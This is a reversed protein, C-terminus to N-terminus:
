VLVRKDGVRRTYHIQDLYEMLPLAYKRSTQLLDRLDRVEISGQERIFNGVLSRVQQLTEDAYLLGDGVQHLRGTEVLWNILEPRFGSGLLEDRSPAEFGAANVQTLIAEIQDKQEATLEVKHSMLRLHAQVAEIDGIESLRSIAEEFLREGLDLQSRVTERAPGVRLPHEAHFRGIVDLITERLHNWTEKALVFSPLGVLVGEDTSTLAALHVSLDDPHLPLERQLVDRHYWGRGRVALVILEKPTAKERGALSDLDLIEPELLAPSRREKGERILRLSRRRVPKPFADLVRGGGVTEQRGPDRLVFRDGLEAVLPADLSVQVLAREGPLLREQGLLRVTAMREASGLYFFLRSLGLLDHSLNPLLRLSLNLRDTARAEPWVLAEGREIEHRDIGGLNVAVRRGPGTSSLSRQHSQLGRIRAEHGSPLIRVHDELALKGGTLTGTVVTGAGRITFARDIWLRPRGVEQATEAEDLVRDIVQILEDIGAGTVSSVHVLPADALFTGAVRERIDEEVMALWDPEVLDSKTVVIVGQRVDLLDLIDLHEQSQPMWSETAAIVFLTLDIGGVGALMNRIFRHHGPVDVMGIEKGSPLEMWAFGLDITMGREKEESLRDPSLGTLRQILTSKGHDIHGATGVVYM